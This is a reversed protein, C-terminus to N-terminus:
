PNETRKRLGIHGRIEKEVKEMDLDPTNLLVLNKLHPYSELDIETFKLGMGVGSVRQVRGKLKLHLPEESDGLILVVDCEAGIPMKEKTRIFLGKMSLDHTEGSHIVIDGSKIIAKVKASTRTFERSDSEDRKEM